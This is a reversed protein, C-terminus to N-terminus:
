KNRGVVAVAVTVVAVGKREREREREERERMQARGRKWFRECTRVSARSGVPRVKSETSRDPLPIRSRRRLLLEPGTEPLPRSGLPVFVVGPKEEKELGAAADVTTRPLIVKLAGTLAAANEGQPLYRATATPLSTCTQVVGKDPPPPSALAGEEGGLTGEGRARWRM